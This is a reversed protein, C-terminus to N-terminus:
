GITAAGAAAAAAATTTTTSSSTDDNGFAVNDRNAEARLSTTEAKLIGALYFSFSSAHRASQLIRTSNM